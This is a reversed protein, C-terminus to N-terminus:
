GRLLHMSVKTGSPSRGEIELSGGSHTVFWEMLWLGIGTGHLLPTETGRELVDVEERPIGPGDDIVHVSLRDDDRHLEIEVRVESRTHVVANEIAEAIALGISPHVRARAAEPLDCRIQSDPYTHEIGEVVTRVVKVLDQQELDSKSTIGFTQFALTKETQGILTDLADKVRQLNPDDERQLSLDLYGLAVSLRNRLNHRLLRNVVNLHQNLLETRRLEAQLDSRTERLEYRIIGGLAGVLATFTVVSAGVFYPDYPTEGDLSISVLVLLYTVAALGGLGVSVKLGYVQHSAPLRSYAYLGLLVIGTSHSLPITLQLLAVSLPESSVLLQGFTGTGLLTGWGILIMSPPGPLKQSVDMVDLNKLNPM